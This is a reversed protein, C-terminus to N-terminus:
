SRYLELEPDTCCRLNTLQTEVCQHMNLHEHEVDLCQAEAAGWGEGELDEGVQGKM